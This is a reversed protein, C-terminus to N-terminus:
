IFMIGMAVRAAFEEFENDKGPKILIEDVMNKPDNIEDMRSETATCVIFYNPVLSSDSKIKRCIELGDYVPMELDSIIIAPKQEKALALGEESGAASIVKFNLDTLRKELLELQYKSDSILLVKYATLDLRTQALLYNVLRYSSKLLRQNKIEDTSQRVTWNKERALIRRSQAIEEAKQEEEKRKKLARRTFNIFAEPDIPQTLAATLGENYAMVLDGSRIEENLVFFCNFFPDKAQILQFAKVSLSDEKIFDMVAMQPLEPRLLELFGSLNELARSGSPPAIVEHGESELAQRVTKLTTESNLLVLIRAM